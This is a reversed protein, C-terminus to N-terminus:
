DRRQCPSINGKYTTREHIGRAHRNHKILKNYWIMDELTVDRGLRIKCAIESCKLRQDKGLVSNYEKTFSPPGEVHVDKTVGETKSHSM